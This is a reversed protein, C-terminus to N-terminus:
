KSRAEDSPNFGIFEAMSKLTEYVATHWSHIGPQPDSLFITLKDNLQKLQEINTM